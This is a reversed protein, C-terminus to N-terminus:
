DSRMKTKGPEVNLDLYKNVPGRKNAWEDTYITCYWLDDATSTKVLPM